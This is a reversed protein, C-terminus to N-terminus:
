ITLRGGMVPVASGELFVTAIKGDDDMIVEVVIESRRGMEVGQTIEYRLTQGPKSDVLSLYAALDSAASGTAPDELTGEIMRTRLVRTGAVADKSRVYFYTGVFSPSWGEDLEGVSCNDATTAVLELTKEDKLEILVFSMGKVISVVPFEKEHSIRSSENADALRPQSKLLDDIPWAYVDHPIAARAVRKGVDFRLAVLGAKLKFQAEIEGENLGRELAIKSLLHCATGITPHGAFPLEKSVMFIDVTWSLAEGDDDRAHVFTSESLNFERAIAQKEEQSLSVSKPVHVIGLPNGKYRTQTFVDVTVFDLQRSM